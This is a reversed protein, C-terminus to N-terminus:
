VNAILFIEIQVLLGLAAGLWPRKFPTLLGAGILAGGGVWLLMAAAIYGQLSLETPLRSIGCVSCIGGALLATGILLDKLSFRPM